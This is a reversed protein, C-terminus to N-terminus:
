LARGAARASSRWTVCCRRRPIRVASSSASTSLSSTFSAAIPVFSWRGTTWGMPATATSSCARGTWTIPARRWSRASAACPRSWHTRVGVLEGYLVETLRISGVVSMPFRSRWSWRSAPAICPRLWAALSTALREMNGSDCASLVVMRLTGAFPTLLRRLQGADVLVKSDGDDDGGDLALGFIQGESSGHCLLHLKVAFPAGQKAAASLVEVLRACSAHPLM